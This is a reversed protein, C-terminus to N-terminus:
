RGPAGVGAARRRPAAGAATRPRRDARDAGRAPAAGRREHPVHDADPELTPRRLRTGWRPGPCGLPGPGAVRAPGGGSREPRDRARGSGARAPMWGRVAWGLAGGPVILGHRAGAQVLL